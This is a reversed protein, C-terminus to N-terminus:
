GDPPTPGPRASALRVLADHEVNMPIWAADGPGLVFSAGDVRMTATGELIYLIEVSDPHRHPPVFAGPALVLLTLSASPSTDRDHFIQASGLGKAITHAPTDAGRVLIAPKASAPIAATGISCTDPAASPTSACAALVLSTLLPLAPDAARM